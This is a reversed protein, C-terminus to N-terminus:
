CEAIWVFENVKKIFVTLFMVIVAYGKIFRIYYRTYGLFFKVGTVDVLLVLGVIVKVKSLDVAIGAKLVIYGLM